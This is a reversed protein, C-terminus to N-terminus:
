VGAASTSEAIEIVVAIEVNENDVHAFNRREEAVVDAAVIVPEFYFEDAGLGIAAGDSGADEHAVSFLYLCLFDEALGAKVRRVIRAQVEAEAGFGGGIELNAPGAAEAFGDLGHLAILDDYDFFSRSNDGALFGCADLTGLYVTEFRNGVTKKSRMIATAKRERRVVM